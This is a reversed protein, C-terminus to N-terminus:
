IRGALDPGEDRCLHHLRGPKSLDDSAMNREELGPICNTNFAFCQGILHFGQEHEKTYDRVPKEDLQIDKPKSM